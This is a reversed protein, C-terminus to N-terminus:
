ISLYVRAPCRLATILAQDSSFVKQHCNLKTSLIVFVCRTHCVATVHSVLGMNNM